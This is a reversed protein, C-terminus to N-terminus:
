LLHAYRLCNCFYLERSNAFVEYINITDYLCKSLAFFFFEIIAIILDRILRFSTFLNALPWNGTKELGEFRCVTRLSPSLISSSFYMMSVVAFFFDFLYIRLIHNVWIPRTWGRPSKKEKVLGTQTTYLLANAGYRRCGIKVCRLNALRPFNISSARSSEVEPEWRSVKFLEM